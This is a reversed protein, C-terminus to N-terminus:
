VEFKESSPMGVGTRAGIAYGVCGSTFESRLGEAVRGILTPLRM